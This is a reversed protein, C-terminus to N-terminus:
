HAAQYAYDTFFSAAIAVSADTGRSKKMCVSQKGSDSVVPTLEM